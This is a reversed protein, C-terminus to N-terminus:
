LFVKQLIVAIFNLYKGGGAAFAKRDNVAYENDMGLWEDWCEQFGEMEWIKLLKTQKSAAIINKWYDMDHLYDLQEPTWSALLEPPLNDHLDKKMGPVSFYIFGGPRVFPALSRDLYDRDRGFYNYADTCVVADFAKPEFPLALADVKVAQLREKDLGMESYFEQNEKPESWLDGSVVKFGYEKALVVSTVGQGSGLDLVFSNEKLECDKLLEEQLTLPNPGMFKARIASTCYKEIRPYEM